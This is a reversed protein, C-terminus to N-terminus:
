GSAPEDDRTVAPLLIAFTSGKGEESEITVRAHHARAVHKVIALGLGSGEKDRSLRDDIRYFKEFIRRHEPPPIGAGNDTVAITVVGNKAHAILRIKPPTGGYKQANSLLNVIAGVIAPRDVVVDPLDEEADLAFDLEGGIEQHPAYARLADALVDSVKEERLEYIKRGSEMRGWDLLREIMKSLRESEAVLHTTCKERTRDDVEPRQLTEAFLRIATLPTRLEHSVKSVFDAQLESLNAERRVFVLVLVIGTIVVSVFSVTLVGFLLNIRAGIFLLIIGISLLLVTPIIILYVLLQVIRRYGLRQVNKATM